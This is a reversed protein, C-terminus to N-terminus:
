PEFPLSAGRDRIRRSRGPDGPRQRRLLADLRQVEEPSLVAAASAVRAQWHRADDPTAIAGVGDRLAYFAASWEGAHEAVASWSTRHAPCPGLRRLADLHDATAYGAHREFGYGPHEAALATMIADRETKALISAAAISRSRADGKIIAQQPGDFGPVTRADVLLAEATRDLGDVARRMALLGARYIDLEAIESVEVRAVSWAVALTRIETALRDRAARSLAKSDEAEPIAGAPDLIVAAAVVPGALPGMGAEDVGAVFRVGSEWLAREHALMSEAHESAREDRQIRRALAVATARPDRLLREVFARPPREGAEIARKM